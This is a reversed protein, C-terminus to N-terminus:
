AKPTIKATYSQMVIKGGRVVFTDTGLEYVNEATDASWVIYAYDGDVTQVKLDFASNPKAFEALFGIFMGKLADVGRLLGMQTFMVADPAYDSLLDELDGAGICHLHHDLVAQTTSVPATTMLVDEKESM